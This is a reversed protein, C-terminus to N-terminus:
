ALPFSARPINFWGRSRVAKSGTELLAGALLSRPDVQASIVDSVPLIKRAQLASPDSSVALSTPQM